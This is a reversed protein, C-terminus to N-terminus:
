LHIILGGRATVYGANKLEESTFYSNSNRVVTYKKSFVVGAYNYKLGLDLGIKPAVSFEIGAGIAFGFGTESADETNNNLEIHLPNSSSTNMSIEKFRDSFKMM